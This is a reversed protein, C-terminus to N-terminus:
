SGEQNKLTFASLYFTSDMFGTPDNKTDIKLNRLKIPRKGNELQLAYRVVQKLNIHKIEVEILAEKIANKGVEPRDMRISLSGKDIGASTALSELYANWPQADEASNEGQDNDSLKEQLRKLEENSDQILTLLEMKDGYERKLKHVGWLSSFSYLLVALIAAILGGTQVTTKSHSDLEDWKVKLQQFWPQESIKDSIQTVWQKFPLKNVM